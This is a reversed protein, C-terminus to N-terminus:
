VKVAKQTIDTTVKTSKLLERLTQFFLANSKSSQIFLPAVLVTTLNAAQRLQILNLLTQCEFDGFNIYDFNSVVLVKASESWIRMYELEESESKGGWSKKLEDLYRAYRLNYVDCHLRSGKWYRCIACYTIMDACRVTNTNSPANITILEGKHSDLVNLIADISFENNRFVFSSFDLNNRELLYSTEALVPCSKDCTFETCHATFICNNM